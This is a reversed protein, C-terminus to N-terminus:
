PYLRGALVVFILKRLCKKNCAPLWALKNAHQSSIIFLVTPAESKPRKPWRQGFIPGFFITLSINGVIGMNDTFYFEHM